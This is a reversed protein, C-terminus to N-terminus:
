SGPILFPPSLDDIGDEVALALERSGNLAFRIVAYKNGTSVLALLHDSDEWAATRITFGDEVNLDLTKHGNEADLVVLQSDGLGDGYAQAGLLHRGDPSFAFLQEECTSWLSTNDTTTVASCSGDDSVSTIGALLDGRAASLSTISRQLSTVKGHDTISYFGQQSSKDNVYVTCGTEESRGSCNEGTVAAVEWTPSGPASLRGLEFDLAGADQVVVVTGNPEVFAGVNGDTSVAFGGSLPWTKGPEAESDDGYFTATLDGSGDMAQRSVLFGGNLRAIGRVDGGKGVPIAADGYHLTGAEFYGAGPLTGTKLGDVGIRDTNPEQAKTPTPTSTVLPGPNPNTPHNDLAVIGVPVAVALVVAAMMMSARMRRGRQIEGARSLVASLELDHGGRRAFEDAQRQLTTSLDHEPTNRPGNM